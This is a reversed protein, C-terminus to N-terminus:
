LRRETIVNAFSPPRHCWCSPQTAKQTIVFSQMTIYVLQCAHSLRDYDFMTYSRCPWFRRRCSIQFCITHDVLRGM